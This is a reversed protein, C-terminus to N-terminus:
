TILISHFPEVHRCAPRPRLRRDAHPEATATVEDPLLRHAFYSSRVPPLRAHPTGAFTVAGVAAPVAVSRSLIHCRLNVQEFKKQEDSAGGTTNLPNPSRHRTAVDEDRFLIVLLQHPEEFAGPLAPVPIELVDFLEVRLEIARV